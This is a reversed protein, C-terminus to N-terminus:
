WLLFITSILRYRILAEENTEQGSTCYENLGTDLNVWSVPKKLLEDGVEVLDNLNKKTAIDVSSVTGSLKDDQMWM